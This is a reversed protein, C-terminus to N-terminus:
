HVSTINNIDTVNWNVGLLDKDGAVTWNDPDGDFVQVSKVITTGAFDGCQFLIFGNGDANYAYNPFGVEVVQFDGTADVEVTYQDRGDWNGMNIQLTGSSPFKATIRVVYSHNEILTLGENLITVQPQWLEGTTTGVTIAVGDADSTVSGDQGDAFWSWMPFVGEFGGTWDKSAVLTQANAGVAMLALAFLIFLKKM